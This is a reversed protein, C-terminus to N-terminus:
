SRVRSVAGALVARVIALTINRAAVCVSSPQAAAGMPGGFPMFAKGQKFLDQLSKQLEVMPDKPEDDKSM